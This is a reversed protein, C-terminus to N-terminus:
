SSKPEDEEEEEIESFFNLFVPFIIAEDPGVIDDYLRDFSSNSSLV